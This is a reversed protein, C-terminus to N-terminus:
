PAASNAPGKFVTLAICAQRYFQLGLVATITAAFTTFPRRCDTHLVRWTKLNAIAHEVRVRIANHEHNFNRGWKVLERRAPKRIPTLIGTGVYAKDSM